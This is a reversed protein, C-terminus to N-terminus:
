LFNKCEPDSSGCGNVLPGSAWLWAVNALKALVAMAMAAGALYRLPAVSRRSFFFPFPHPRVPPEGQTRRHAQNPRLIAPPSCNPPPPARNGALYERRHRRSRACRSLEKPPSISSPSPFRRLVKSSCPAADLQLVLRRARDSPPKMPSLFLVVPFSPLAALSLSPAARPTWTSLYSSCSSRRTALFYSTASPSGGPRWAPAETFCRLLCLGGQLYGGPSQPKRPFFLAASTQTIKHM